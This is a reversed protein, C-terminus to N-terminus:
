GEIENAIVVNLKGALISCGHLLGNGEIDNPHFICVCLYPSLLVSVHVRVGLTALLAFTALIEGM